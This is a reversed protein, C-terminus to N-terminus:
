SRRRRRLLLGFMGLGLLAVTTPEPIAAIFGPDIEGTGSIEFTTISANSLVGFDSLDIGIGAINSEISTTEDIVGNELNSLSLNGFDRDGFLEIDIKNAAGPGLLDTSFNGATYNETNGNITLSFNDGVGIELIVFDFGARNVVPADFTGGLTSTGILGTNVLLDGDLLAARTGTAPQSTDFTFMQLTNVGSVFSTIEFGIM